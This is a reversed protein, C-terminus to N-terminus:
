ISSQLILFSDVESGAPVHYGGLQTDEHAYRLPVIPAPSYKRLTEHFVAGLFPLQSLHEETIKDTGCLNQIEQYLRNQQMFLSDTDHLVLVDLLNLSTCNHYFNIVQRNPDKALEYMAWEATVLTTDSTEIITEWVLMTIQENTLTKAESLL